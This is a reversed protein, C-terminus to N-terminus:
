LGGYHREQYKSYKKIKLDLLIGLRVLCCLQQKFQNVMKERGRPNNDRNSGLIQIQHLTAKEMQYLQLM